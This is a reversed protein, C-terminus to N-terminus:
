RAGEAFLRADSPRSLRAKTGPPIGVGLFGGADGLGLRPIACAARAPDKLWVFWAAPTATSGAPDWRGLQMPVREAFAALLNLPRAADFFLPFRGLTDLFTTRILIAVGRRARKLGLEVFAQAHMFPPNTVIWDAAVVDAAPSLFDLVPAPGFPGGYAHVDTMTVCGFGVGALGHAMHGQGCAPDWAWWPGPDIQQILEGGARAAWPPTPYFDLARYLATAPDDDAIAGRARDVRGIGGGGVLRPGDDSM